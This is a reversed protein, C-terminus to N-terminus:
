HFRFRMLSRLVLHIIHGNNQVTEQRTFTHGKMVVIIVNAYTYIHTRVTYLRLDYFLIFGVRESEYLPNVVIKCDILRDRDGKGYQNRERRWNSKEGWIESCISQMWLQFAYEAWKLLRWTLLAAFGCVWQIDRNTTESPKLSTNWLGKMEVYKTHTQTSKIQTNNKNRNRHIYRRRKETTMKKRKKRINVM